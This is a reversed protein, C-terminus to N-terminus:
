RKGTGSRWPVLGRMAPCTPAHWVHLGIDGRDDMSVAAHGACDWCGAAFRQGRASLLFEVAARRKRDRRNM